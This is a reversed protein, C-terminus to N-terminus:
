TYFTKLRKLISDYNDFVKWMGDEDKKLYYTQGGFIKFYCTKNDSNKLIFDWHEHARLIKIDGEDSILECSVLDFIADKYDTDFFYNAKQYNEAFSSLRKYTATKKFVYPNLISIDIDPISKIIEYKAMFFNKIVDFYIKNEKKLPKVKINNSCIIYDNLDYYGLFISLKHLTKLFRLDAIASNRYNNEFIRQLTIYSITNGLEFKREGQLYKSNSIEHSVIESLQTYHTRKWHSTEQLLSNVINQHKKIDKKLEDIINKM